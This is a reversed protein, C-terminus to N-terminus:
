FILLLKIFNFILFYFYFFIQLMLFNILRFKLLVILMATCLFSRFHVGALHVCFWRIDRYFLKFLITVIVFFIPIFNRINGFNILLCQEVIILRFIRRLVTSKLFILFCKLVILVQRRYLNIANSIKFHIYCWGPHQWLRNIIPFCISLFIWIQFQIRDLM